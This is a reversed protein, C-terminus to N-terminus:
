EFKKVIQDTRDHMRCGEGKVEIRDDHSACRSVVLTTPKKMGGQAKTSIDKESPLKRNNNNPMYQSNKRISSRSLNCKRKKNTAAIITPKGNPKTSASQLRAM